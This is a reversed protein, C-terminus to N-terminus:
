AARRARETLAEAMPLLLSIHGRLEDERAPNRGELAIIERIYRLGMQRQACDVCRVFAARLQHPTRITSM